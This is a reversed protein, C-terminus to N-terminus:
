IKTKKKQTGVVIIFCQYIICSIKSFASFTLTFIQILATRGTLNPRRWLEFCRWQEYLSNLNFARMKCNKKEPSYKETNNNNNNNNIYYYNNTVSFLFFFSTLFKPKKTSERLYEFRNVLLWNKKKSQKEKSISFGTKSNCNNFFLKRWNFTNKKNFRISYRKREILQLTSLNFQVNM